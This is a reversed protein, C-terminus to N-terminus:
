ARELDYKTLKDKEKLMQMEESMIKNIKEQAKSNGISKNIAQLYKNELQTVGFQANITDLYTEAKKNILDWSNTFEERSKGGYLQTEVIKAALALEDTLQKKRQEAWQETLKQLNQISDAWMDYTEEALKENGTLLADQYEQWNRKVQENAEEAQRTLNETKDQSFNTMMLQAELSDKGYWLETLKEAHDYVGNIMDYRALVRKDWDNLEKLANSYADLTGQYAQQVDEVSQEITSALKQTDEQLQYIDEANYTQGNWTVSKAGNQLKDLAKTGKNLLKTQEPLTDVTAQIFSTAAQAAAADVSTQDPNIILDVSFSGLKKTFELYQKEAKSVDLIM